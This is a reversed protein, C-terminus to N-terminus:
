GKCVSQKLNRNVACFTNTRNATGPFYKTCEAFNTTKLNAYQLYESPDGKRNINGTGVAVVDYENFDGSENIGTDSAIQIPQIYENFEIPESLKILAIDNESIFNRGIETYNPHMICRSPFAPIVVRHEETANIKWLGLVVRLYDGDPEICHAATIVWNENLIAAGCDDPEENHSFTQIYAFYPFQGLKALVGNAIRPQIKFAYSGASLLFIAAFFLSVRIQLM